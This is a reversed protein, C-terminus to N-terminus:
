EEILNMNRKKTQVEDIIVKLYRTEPHDEGFVEKKINYSRLLLSEAQEYKEQNIYNRALSDTTQLTSPDKLGKTKIEVELVGTLLKEAKPLDLMFSTYVRGLSKKCQLTLTYNEGFNNESIEVMDELLQQLKSINRFYIYINLLKTKRSIIDVIKEISMEKKENNKLWTTISVEAEQYIIKEKCHVWMLRTENLWSGNGELISLCKEYYKTGMEKDNKLESLKALKRYITLTDDDYEGFQKTVAELAGNLLKEANDYMRLNAYIDALEIIMGVTISNALGATIVMSKCCNEKVDIAENIRNCDAFVNSLQNMTEVTIIHDPGFNEKM